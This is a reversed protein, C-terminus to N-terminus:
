ATFGPLGQNVEAKSATLWDQMAPLRWVHDCYRELLPPLAIGYARFRSVVPAYMCHAISFGGFLFDGTRSRRTDGALLEQAGRRRDSYPRLSWSFWNKTGIILQYM